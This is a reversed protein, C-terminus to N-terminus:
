RERRQQNSHIIHSHFGPRYPAQMLKEGQGKKAKADSIYIPVHVSHGAMQALNIDMALESSYYLLSVARTFTNHATCCGITRWCRCCGSQGGPEEHVGGDGPAHLDRRPCCRVLELGGTARLCCAPWRNLGV